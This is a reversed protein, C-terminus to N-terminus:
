SGYFLGDLFNVEHSLRLLFVVLELGDLAVECHSSLYLLGDQRATERWHGVYGILHVEKCGHRRCLFHSAVEEVKETDVFVTQAKDNGVDGALTHRCGYEHGDATGKQTGSAHPSYGGLLTEVTYVIHEAVLTYVRHEDSDEVAYVVNLGSRYFIGIGAM